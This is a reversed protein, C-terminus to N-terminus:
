LCSVRGRLPLESIAALNSELSQSSIGSIQVVNVGATLADAVLERPELLQFTAAQAFGNSSPQPGGSAEELAQEPDDNGHLGCGNTPWDLEM